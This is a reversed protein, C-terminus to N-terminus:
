VKKEWRFDCKDAGLAITGKRILNLGAFESTIADVECLISSYEQFHHKNFLKCIGCEIIDVGYGLGFTERKDTIINAIFGAPNKNKSVRANFKKLLLTALPSNILQVPLKKIWLQFINKPRVYEIVIELCVSRITEYSKGLGDLTKILALFYACFDLRKDIPNKSSAAFGTDNAIIKYNKDTIDIIRYSQEPFNQKVSAVFYKRYKKM